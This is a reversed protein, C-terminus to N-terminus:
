GKGDIFDTGDHGKAPKVVWAGGDWVKLPHASWQSGDWVKVKGSRGSAPIAGYVDLSVVPTPATLGNMTTAPTAGLDAFINLTAQQINANVYNGGRDHVADLGWSWQCTGFGVVVAGSAYRQSIVGWNLDGNGAYEQGNDDARKGDINFIHNALVVYSGEPQTPLIEDAEFGILGNVTFNGSTITTDRWFPHSAYESAQYFTAAYDNVGNMRFDTGTLLHEPKRGAFRTDKWTGTWDIPDLPTGAVHGGPGQMTDKYCWMTNREADFRTRWFVENGSFFLLNGGADRYAEFTDRMGDSWYEDHGNSVAINTNALVSVGADVDKSAVYKIDIGNRELFRIMPAECAMWYTQSIGERTVIPRHYSVAHTRSAIDGLPGGSGYVSKGTLPSAPTGYYNYALAWTTDSTKYAVDAARADNRVIFPIYSANDRTVNRYVGVFLGSLADAPVEWSATISWNSCEVGNNSDPIISPDPQSTATNELEAVKRWGLGDYYGIRYIDIIVGDGHCSFDITEGANVSFQRTFGLNSTDGAGAITYDAGMAGEKANEEEITAGFTPDFSGDGTPAIIDVGYWTSTAATPRGNTIGYRSNSLLTTYMPGVDLRTGPWANPLTTYHQLPGPLYVALLYDVGPVGSYPTDFLLENWGTSATLGTKVAVETDNAYLRVELGSQPAPSYFRGGSLLSAGSLACIIGFSQGGPANDNVVGGPTWGLDSPFAYQSVPPAATTEIEIEDSPESENGAEDRASVRYYWTGVPATESYHSLAPGGVQDEPAPTFGQTSSRYVVYNQLEVDDTSDDWDLTVSQYTTDGTLNQPVSPPETDPAEIVTNMYHEVQAETLAADFFRLDDLVQQQYDEGFLYMTDDSADITGSVAQSAVEDGDIYARLTTGDYALAYHAWTGMSVESATLAVEGGNIRATFVVNVGDSASIGFTVNSSTDLQYVSRSSTDAGESGRRAWFMVTREPTELWDAANAIRHPAGGGVQHLANGALPMPRGMGFNSASNVTLDHNNGTADEATTGGTENFGYEAIPEPMPGAGEDTVIIDAGYWAESHGTSGSGIRYRGRGSNPVLISIDAEALVLDVDDVSRIIHGQPSAAHVYFMQQPDVFEYGIFVLDGPNLAFPTDWTVEAWGANASTTTVKEVLPATSLDVAATTSVWAKITISQNFVSPDNPIYVRGGACYWGSAMAGYTYLYNGLVINPTGDSYATLLYPPTGSGFVTHQAM